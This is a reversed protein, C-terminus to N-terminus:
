PTLAYPNLLTEVRFVLRKKQEGHLPHYQAAPERQGATMLHLTGGNDLPQQFIPFIFRELQRFEASDDLPANGSLCKKFSQLLDILGPNALAATKEVQFYRELGPAELDFDIALVRLGRRALIDAVNAMAMSRGVGGKFSYFTFFCAM